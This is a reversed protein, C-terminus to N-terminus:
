LVIQKGDVPIHGVIKGTALEVGMLAELADTPKDYPDGPAWYHVDGTCEDLIYGPRNSVRSSHLDAPSFVGPVYGAMCPHTHYSAVIPFHGDYSENDEDIEINDNHGDTVPKSPNFRGNPMKVIIGGYEYYHPHDNYAAAFAMMAAEVETEPAEPKAQEPAPVPADVSQAKAMMSHEGRAEAGFILLAALLALVL